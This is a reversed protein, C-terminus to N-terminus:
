LFNEMAIRVISGEVFHGSLSLPPAASKKKSPVESSPDKPLPRKSALPTPTSTKESSTAMRADGRGWPPKREWRGACEAGQRGAGARVARRAVRGSLGGRAQATGGPPTRPWAGGGGAGPLGSTPCRPAPRPPSRFEAAPSDERYRGAM